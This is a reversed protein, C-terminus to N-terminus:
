AGFKERHLEGLAEVLGKFATVRMPGLVEALYAVDIMFPWGIKAEYYDDYVIDVGEDFVTISWDCDYFSTSTHKIITQNM